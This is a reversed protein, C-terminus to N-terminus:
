WELLVETQFDGSKHVATCEGSKIVMICDKQMCTPDADGPLFRKRSKKTVFGPESQRDVNLECDWNYNKGCMVVDSKRAVKKKNHYNKTVGIWGAKTETARYKFKLKIWDGSKAEANEKPYVDKKKSKTRANECGEPNDEGCKYMFAFNHNQLTDLDRIDMGHIMELLEFDLDKIIITTGCQDDYVKYINSGIIVEGLSNYTARETECIIDHDDPDAATSDESELWELELLELHKRLSFFDVFFEEFDLLPQDEHIQLQELMVNFEEETQEGYESLMAEIIYDWYDDCSEDLQDIISFYKASDEFVLIGNLIDVGTLDIQLGSKHFGITNENGTNREILENKNCSFIMLALLVAFLLMSYGYGTPFKWTSIDKSKRTIRTKM